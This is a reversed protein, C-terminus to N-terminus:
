HKLIIYMYVTLFNWVVPVFFLSVYLLFISLAGKFITKRWKPKQVNSFAQTHQSCIQGWTVIVYKDETCDIATAHVSIITDSIESCHGIFTMKWVTWDRRSILSLQIQRCWWPVLLSFLQLPFARLTRYGPVHWIELQLRRRSRSM